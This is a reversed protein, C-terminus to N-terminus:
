LPGYTNSALPHSVGARHGVEIKGKRMRVFLGKARVALRPHDRFYVEAPTRYDLASHPRRYNYREQFEGLVQRLQALDRLEISRLHEKLTRVFREAKGNTTPHYPRTRIHEIELERLHSTFSCAYGKRRPAFQAGNDSLIQDPRGWRSISRDLLATANDTTGHKWADIAALFRSHDDLYFGIAFRGVSRIRQCAFDTAWLNNSRPREFRKWRPRERKPAFGHRSLINRVTRLCVSAADRVHLWIEVASRKLDERKLELIREVLWAPKRMRNNEVTRPQSKLGELGEKQYREVLELVTKRTTDFALCIHRTKMKKELYLQVIQHKVGVEDYPIM